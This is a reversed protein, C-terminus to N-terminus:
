AQNLNSQATGAISNYQTASSHLEHRAADASRLKAPLTAPSGAPTPSAAAGQESSKFVAGSIAQRAEDGSTTTASMGAARPFVSARQGAPSGNISNPGPPHLVLMPPQLRPAPRSAPLAVDPKVIPAPLPNPAAELQAAQPTTPSAAPAQQAPFARRDMRATNNAATEQQGTSVKRLHITVFVLAALAFVAPIALNWGSFWPRRVPTPQPPAVAALEPIEALYVFARCDPCISLHALTQQQQHPPLAHEAFASLQDADPHQGSQLVQNM